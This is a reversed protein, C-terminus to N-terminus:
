LASPECCGRGARCSDVTVLAQDPGVVRMTRLCWFQATTSAEGAEPSEGTAGYYYRKTRLHRCADPRGGGAPPDNSRDSMADGDAASM